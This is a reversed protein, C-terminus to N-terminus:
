EPSFFFPKSRGGSCSIREGDQEGVQELKSIMKEKILVGSGLQRATHHQLYLM